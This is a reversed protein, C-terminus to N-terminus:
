FVLERRTIKISFLAISSFDDRVLCVSSCEDWERARTGNYDMWAEDRNQLLDSCRRFADIEKTFALASLQSVVDQDESDDPRTSWCVHALLQLISLSM